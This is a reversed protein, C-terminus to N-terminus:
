AARFSALIEEIQSRYDRARLGHYVSFQLRWVCDGQAFYFTINDTILEAFGGTWRVEQYERGAISAPRPLQVSFGIRLGFINQRDQEILDPVTAGRSCQVHVSAFLGADDRYALPLFDQGAKQESRWNKPVSITFSGDGASFPTLPGEWALAAHNLAQSIPIDPTLSPNPDPYQDPGPSAPAPSGAVGTVTAAGPTSSGPSAAPSTSGDGSCAAALLM